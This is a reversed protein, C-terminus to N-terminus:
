IRPKIKPWVDMTQLGVHPSPFFGEAQTNEAYVPPATIRLRRTQIGTRISLIGISEAVMGLRLTTGGKRLMVATRINRVDRMVRVPSQGNAVARRMWISRIRLAPRREPLYREWIDAKRWGPINLREQGYAM